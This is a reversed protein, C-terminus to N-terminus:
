LGHSLTACSGTSGNIAAMLAFALSMDPLSRGAAWVTGELFSSTPCLPCGFASVWAPRLARGTKAREHCSGWGLLNVLSGRRDAATRIAPQRVEPEGWRHLLSSHRHREQAPPATERKAAAIASSRGPSAPTAVQKGTTPNARSLCARPAGARATSCTGAGTRTRSESPASDCFSAATTPARRSPWFFAAVLSGGPQSGRGSLRLWTIARRRPPQEGRDAAVSLRGLSRIRFTALEITLEAVDPRAFRYDPAPADSAEQQALAAARRQTQQSSSRDAAACAARKSLAPGCVDPLCRACEPPRQQKAEGLLVAAQADGNDLDMSKRVAPDICCDGV